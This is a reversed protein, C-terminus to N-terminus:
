SSRGVIWCANMTRAIAWMPAGSTQIRKEWADKPVISKSHALLTSQWDSASRFPIGCHVMEEAELFGLYVLVVPVGMSAIKWAWAFRNSLQYHTDRSIGWGPYQQELHRSAESIAAGIQADNAPNGATKGDRKLEKGHAKAEVLILGRQGEITCTSVVDWNPTNANARNLLWWSTLEEQMAKSLFGKCQGLKPEERDLLGKPAFLHENPCVEAIPAVLSTLALTVQAPPLSTLLLCRLRSGFLDRTPITVSPQM